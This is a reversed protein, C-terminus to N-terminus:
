HGGMARVFPSQVRLLLEISQDGKVWLITITQIKFTCQTM